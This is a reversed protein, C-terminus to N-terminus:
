LHVQASSQLEVVRKSQAKSHEKVKRLEEVTKELQRNLHRVMQEQESKLKKIEEDKKEQYSYFKRRVNTLEEKLESVRPDERDKARGEGPVRHKGTQGSRGGWM